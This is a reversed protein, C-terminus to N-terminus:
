REYQLTHKLDSTQSFNYKTTFERNKYLSKGNLWEVALAAM